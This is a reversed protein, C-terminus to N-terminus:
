MTSRQSFLASLALVASRQPDDLIGVKVQNFPM